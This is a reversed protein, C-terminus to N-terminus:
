LFFFKQVVLIILWVAIFILLITIFKAYYNMITSSPINETTTCDHVTITTQPNLLQADIDCDSHLDISTDDYFCLALSEYQGAPLYFHYKEIQGVNTDPYSDTSLLPSGTYPNKFRATHRVNSLGIQTGMGLYLVFDNCLYDSNPINIYTEGTTYDPPLIPRSQAKIFVIPLILLLFLCILINKFKM